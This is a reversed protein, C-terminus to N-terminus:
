GQAPPIVLFFSSAAFRGTRSELGEWHDPLEEFASSLGHSAIELSSGVREL